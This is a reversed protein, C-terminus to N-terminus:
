VERCTLASDADHDIDMLDHHMGRTRCCTIELAGRSAQGPTAFRTIVQHSRPPRAWTQTASWLEILGVAPSLQQYRRTEALASEDWWPFAGAQIAYEPWRPKLGRDRQRSGLTLPRWPEQRGTRQIAVSFM